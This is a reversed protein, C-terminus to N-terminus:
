VINMGDIGPFFKGSLCLKKFHNNCKWHLNKEPIFHDKRLRLIPAVTRATGGGRVGVNHIRKDSITVPGGAESTLHVSSTKVPFYHRKAKFMGLQLLKFLNWFFTKAPFVYVYIFYRLAKTSLSIIETFNSQKVEGTTM